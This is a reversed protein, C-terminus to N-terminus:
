TTAPTIAGTMWSVSDLFLQGTTNSLPFRLRINGDTGIDVRYFRAPIVDEVAVVTVNNAPVTNTPCTLIISGEPPSSGPFYVEGALQCRGWADVLYQATSGPVVRWPATINTTLDYWVPSVLDAMGGGAGTPGVPGQAGTPGTAGQPGAAGAPGTPGDIGQPGVAIDLEQWGDPDTGTGVLAPNYYWVAYPVTPPTGVLWVMGAQEPLPPCPLYTTDAVVAAIM